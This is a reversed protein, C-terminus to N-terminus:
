LPVEEPVRGRFVVLSRYGAELLADRAADLGAGVEDPRHADSGCTVPVGLRAAARLFGPAPYLEGCPKRLGATNVEFAVGAAALAEATREYWPTPDVSPLYGFKKVLDPHAMVDFLGSAAAASLTAFYRDWLEDIDWEAYRDTLDPDDFAWGDVFHVSGLVMDLASEECMHRIEDQRGEIWDAEIGVLVEPGGDAATAAALARIEAVYGSLQEAPMAYQLAHPTDAPLPLHDTFCLVSVGAATAARVYEEPTGSAHGCRSTHMHLDIM